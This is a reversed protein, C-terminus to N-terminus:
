APSQEAADPRRVTELLRLLTRGPTSDFRAQAASWAARGMTAWQARAAWARELAAGVSRATPAEAIFGTAGEDIWELNGGVDTVVATRGCLMAEVLALPTGEHRSALLLIENDAWVARLDPVQGMFRVRKELQLMASLSRLYDEDRGTGYIRLEWARQTWQPQALAELLVDQGKHLAELRAVSAMRTIVAPAPWEVPDTSVLNVPNRLVVAAPLRRALQREAECRNHEAVFAVVVAREFFDVARQRLGPHSLITDDNHQCVIVYPCGVEHTLHQVLARHHTLLFDYTSGQSICLVDPPPQLFPRARASLRDLWLRLTKSRPQQRREWLAAGADVLRQVGAARPRWEPVSVAIQHGAQLAEHAAAAWLEESGGWPDGLMASFFGVKM